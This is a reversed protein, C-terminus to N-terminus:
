NISSIIFDDDVDDNEKQGMMTAMNVTSICIIEMWSTNIMPEM